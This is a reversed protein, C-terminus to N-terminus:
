KIMANYTIIDKKKISQFINEASEVDGFKMLMHIASTLVINEDRYDNPMEDLLKKGIKKARDNALQACANFVITYTVHDLNIHIQEFLDLAKESMDNAVYGKIMVNYSIIDKKKMSQFVHEANEIDGFKILMDIASNILVNNNQYNTPMRHLLKKGIKMARNNAIQACANFLVTLTVSDPEITMEDFLDLVKESMNNTILGKFMSAYMPNSKNVIKSFLDYGHDIKHCQMYFNILSTQIYPNDLTKPSLKEKISVGQQYDHLKTCAKIAM